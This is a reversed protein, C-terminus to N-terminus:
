KPGFMQDLDNNINTQQQARQNIAAEALDNRMGSLVGVEVRKAQDVTLDTNVANVFPMETVGEELGRTTHEGNISTPDTDVAFKTYSKRSSGNQKSLGYKDDRKETISTVNNDITDGKSDRIVNFSHLKKHGRGEEVMITNAVELKSGIPSTKVIQGISDPDKPNKVGLETILSTARVMLKGAIRSAQDIKREDYREQLDPPRQYHESM